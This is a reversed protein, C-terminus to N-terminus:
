LQLTPLGASPGPCQPACGEAFIVGIFRDSSRIKRQSFQQLRFVSFGLSPMVHKQGVESWIRIFITWQGRVNSPWISRGSQMFSTGQVLKASNPRKSFTLSCHCILVYWTDLLMPLAHTQQPWREARWHGLCEKRYLTRLHDYSFRLWGWAITAPLLCCVAQIEARFASSFCRFSIDLMGRHFLGGRSITSDRSCRFYTCTGTLGVRRKLVWIKDTTCRLSM